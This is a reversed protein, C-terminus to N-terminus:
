IEKEIKRAIKRNVLDNLHSPVAGYEYEKDTFYLKDMTCDVVKIQPFNEEIFQYCDELMQNIRLIEEANKFLVQSYIDGVKTSLMNRVVVVNCLPFKEQMCEMFKFFNKKWLKEYEKSDRKIIRAGAISIDTEDLADSKTIYGGAMQIIDFREEIFDIFVYEPNIDKVINWFSSEIDRQVMIERYRNKHICKLGKVPNMLSIISSFNFRGYPNHLVNMYGLIRNLNYGGLTIYSFNLTGPFKEEIYAYYKETLQFFEERDRRYFLAASLDSLKRKVIEQLIQKYKDYLGCIKFNELLNDFALLGVAKEDGNNIRPQESLSKPRFRRYYYLGEHVNAIGGSLAILLPYVARAESHCNPFTVGYDVFLTKKIMCKWIATFGYKMHDELSYELGMNGSCIHYTKEGTHNDYKYVDCEAMNVKREIITTYLKELYTCDVWDDSDIFVLYEGRANNIGCNRALSPGENEKTIIRIRSDKEAWEECKKESGDTSGDNILIVEFESFTQGVVSEMCQDIWEYVNYVPIIISIPIINKRM